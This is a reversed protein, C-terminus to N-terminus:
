FNGAQFTHVTLEVAEPGAATSFLNENEIGRAFEHFGFQVALLDGDGGVGDEALLEYRWPLSARHALSQAPFAPGVGGRALDDCGFAGGVRRRKSQPVNEFICRRPVFGM